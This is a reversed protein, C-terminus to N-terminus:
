CIFGCEIVHECISAIKVWDKLTITDRDFRFRGEEDYFLDNLEDEKIETEEDNHANIYVKDLHSYDGDLVFFSIGEGNVEEFLIATRM